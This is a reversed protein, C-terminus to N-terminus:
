FSLLYYSALNSKFTPRMKGCAPCCAVFSFLEYPMPLQILLNQSEKHRQFVKTAVLVVFVKGQLGQHSSVLLIDSCIQGLRFESSQLQLYLYIANPVETM